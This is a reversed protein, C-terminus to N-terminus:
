TLNSEGKSDKLNREVCIYNFNALLGFKIGVCMCLM